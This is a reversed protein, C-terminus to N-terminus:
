FNILIPKVSIKQWFRGFQVDMNLKSAKYPIKNLNLLEELLNHMCFKLCSDTNIQVNKRWFYWHLFVSPMWVSVVCLLFQLTVTTTTLFKFYVFHDCSAYHCSVRTFFSEPWLITKNRQAFVFVQCIHLVERWHLWVYVSDRYNMSMLLTFKRVQQFNHSQCVLNVVLPSYLIFLINLVDDVESLHTVFTCLEM